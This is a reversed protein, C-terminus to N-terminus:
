SRLSSQSQPLGAKGVGASGHPDALWDSPGAEWSGLGPRITHILAGILPSMRTRMDVAHRVEETACTGSIVYAVVWVLLM